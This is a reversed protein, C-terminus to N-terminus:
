RYAIRKVEDIYSWDLMANAGPFDIAIYPMNEQYLKPDNAAVYETSPVGYGAEIETFM